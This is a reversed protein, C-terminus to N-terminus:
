FILTSRTSSAGATNAADASTRVLFGFRGSGTFSRRLSWTGSSTSTSRATLVERGQSDVRYLSVTQGTRSVAQGSFTYDRTGNRVATITLRPAVSVLTSTTVSDYASAQGDSTTCGGGYSAWVRSSTTPTFTWTFTRAGDAETTTGNQWDTIRATTTPTVRRYGQPSANWQQDAPGTVTLKVPTGATVTSPSATSSVQPACSATGPEAAVAATGVPVTAALATLPLVFLRSAINVADVVCGAGARTGARRDGPLFVQSM